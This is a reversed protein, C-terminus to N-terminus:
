AVALAAGKARNCSRHALQVNAYSHAGGKSLPIVHDIEWHSDPKVVGRCIGCVGRDREYVVQPDVREVFAKAQVARRTARSNRSIRRILDRHSEVYAKQQQRARETNARYWARAARKRREANATYHKRFYDPNKEKCSKRTALARDPHAKYWRKYAKRRAFRRCEESCLSPKVGPRNVERQQVTRGCEKCTM